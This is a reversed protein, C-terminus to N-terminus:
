SPGSEALPYGVLRSKALRRRADLDGGKPSALRWAWRALAAGLAHLQSGQSCLTSKGLQGIPLPTLVLKPPQSRDPQKSQKQPRASGFAQQVGKQSASLHSFRRLDRAM